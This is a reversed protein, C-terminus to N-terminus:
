QSASAFYLRHIHKYLTDRFSLSLQEVTTDITTGLFSTSLQLVVSELMQFLFELLCGFWFFFFFFFLPPPPPPPCPPTPLTISNNSNCTFATCGIREVERLSGKWEGKLTQRTHYVRVARTKPTSRRSSKARCTQRAIASTPISAAFFLM